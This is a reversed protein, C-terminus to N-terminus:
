KKFYDWPWSGFYKKFLLTAFENQDLYLSHNKFEYV